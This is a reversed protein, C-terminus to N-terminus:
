ETIELEFDASFNEGEATKGSVRVLSKGAAAAELDATYADDKASATVPAGAAKWGEGKKMKMHCVPCTEVIDSEACKMPCIWAEGRGFLTVFVEAGTIAKPEAKAADAGGGHNAVKITFARKEGKKWPGDATALSVNLLTKHPHGCNCWKGQNMGCPCHVTKGDPVSFTVDGCKCYHVNVKAAWENKDGSWGVGPFALLAVVALLAVLPRVSGSSISRFM